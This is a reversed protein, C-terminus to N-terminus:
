TLVLYTHGQKQAFFSTLVSFFNLYLQLFCCVFLRSVKWTDTKNGEFINCDFDSHGLIIM